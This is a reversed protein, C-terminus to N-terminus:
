ISQHSFYKYKYKQFIFTKTNTDFYMEMCQFGHRYQDNLMVVLPQSTCLSQKTYMNLLVYMYM